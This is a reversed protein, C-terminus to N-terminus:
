NTVGKYQSELAAQMREAEARRKVIKLMSEEDSNFIAKPIPKRGSGRLIENAFDDVDHRLREFEAGRPTLAVVFGALCHATDEDMIQDMVLAETGNPLEHFNHVKLLEPRETVIKEIKQFLDKPATLISYM